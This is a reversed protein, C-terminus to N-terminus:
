VEKAVYSSYVGCYVFLHKFFFILLWDNDSPPYDGGFEDCSSQYVKSGPVVGDEEKSRQEMICYGQLHKMECRLAEEDIKWREDIAGVSHGRKGPIPSRVSQRGRSLTPSKGGISERRKRVGELQLISYM